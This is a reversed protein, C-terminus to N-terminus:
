VPASNVNERGLQVRVRTAHVKDAEWDPETQLTHVVGDLMVLLVALRM